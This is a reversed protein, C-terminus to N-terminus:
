LFTFGDFIYVYNSVIGIIEIFVRVKREGKKNSNNFKTAPVVVPEGSHPFPRGSMEELIAQKYIDSKLFRTYCDQKM